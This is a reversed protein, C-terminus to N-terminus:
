RWGHGREAVKRCPSRVVGRVAATSRNWQGALELTGIPRRSFTAVPLCLRGPRRSTHESFPPPRQRWGHGSEATLEAM